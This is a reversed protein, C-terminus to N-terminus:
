IALSPQVKKGKLLKKKKKPSTYNKAARSVNKKIVTNERQSGAVTLRGRALFGERDAM